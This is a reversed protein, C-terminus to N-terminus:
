DGSGPQTGPGEEAVVSDLNKPATGSTVVRLPALPKWGMTRDPEQNLIPILVPVEIEEGRVIMGADHPFACRRLNVPATRGSQIRATVGIQRHIAGRSSERHIEIVVAGQVNRNRAVRGVAAM